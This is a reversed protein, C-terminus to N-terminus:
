QPAIERWKDGDSFIFVADEAAKKIKIECGKPVPKFDYQEREYAGTGIGNRWWWSGWEHFSLKILKGSDVTATLGNNKDFMNFQAVQYFRGKPKKDAMYKLAGKLSLDKRSFDKFMPIGKYNEPFALVYIESNNEWRFDNLLGHVVKESESWYNNIKILNFISIGLLAAYFVYRIKKNFYQFLAVMGMYFFLSAFYGYRDNEGHLIWAVYLNSVPALALFFLLWLFGVAKIKNNIKKYFVIGAIIIAIGIFLFIYAIFGTDCTKILQEKILHPWERWFVLYKSFYKLYNAAIPKISFNLHVGEGYHGVWGGLIIKNMLFYIASLIFFPVAIWPTPRGELRRVGAVVGPTRRRPPRGVGSGGERWYFMFVLVILPLALALEFTFLAAVFFLISFVFDKRKNGEMYKIFFLLSSLMTFTCFLFNFCVKWIVAEANYPSLLFLSAAILAPVAIGGGSEDPPAPPPVAIGSKEFVKKAVIYGLFGNAVHLSTYVLYWPWPETGFIKYFIFLFFNTVQHLAPFGFCHLFGLFPAGELREQLGTFDTVFGANMTKSYFLHVAAFFLALVTANERFGCKNWFSNM